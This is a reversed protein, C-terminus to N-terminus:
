AGQSAQCHLQSLRTRSTPTAPRRRRTEIPYAASFTRHDLAVQAGNRSVVDIVIPALMNAILKKSPSAAVVVLVAIDDGGVDARSALTEADPQPYDPGFLAGDVVPFCLEPTRISQLFGITGDEGYELLVFRDDDPFGVLGRPISIVADDEVLVTGFRTGDIQIM